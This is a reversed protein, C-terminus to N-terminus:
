NIKLANFVDMLGSNLFYIPSKQRKEIEQPPGLDFNVKKLKSGRSFYFFNLNRKKVLLGM